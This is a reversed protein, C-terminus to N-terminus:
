PKRSSAASSCALPACSVGHCLRSAVGCRGVSPSPQGGGGRLLSVGVAGAGSPSLQARGRARPTSWAALLLARRAACPARLRTTAVPKFAIPPM